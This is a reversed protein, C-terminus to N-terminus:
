ELPEAVHMRVYGSESFSSFPTGVFRARARWHGVTPPQWAISFLGDASVQGAIVSSFHWGSLPDFRDIEVRVPGGHSASTVLVTLPVPVGPRTEAYTTGAAAISSTTVDRVFLQLGYSGGSKQRSRVAAYYRGPAIHQRLVQRGKGSCACAIRGGTENLLLLDLGVTAKQRLDITALENERPVDFRYLDLLDIGRGFISGRVFEGNTLKVGPAMDDAGAAAVALRYYHARADGDPDRVVLSYLGGGDIGPTFLQYGGCSWTEVAKDARFAYVGPRYLELRLCKAPSAINIRYSTGRNMPVAWADTSDLVGNITDTVGASPLPAGPPRPPTEAVRVDLDYGGVTSGLRRGVGVLYSGQSFGYWAIRARGSRNTKACALPARSSRVIRYVVIAADLEDRAVLRAVLPGRHPAQVLYWKAGAVAACGFGPEDAKPRGADAVGHLALPAVGLPVVNKPVAQQPSTFATAATLTLALAAVVGVAGAIRANM